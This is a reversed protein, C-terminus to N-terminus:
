GASMSISQILTKWPQDFRPRLRERGEQTALHGVSIPPPRQHRGSATSLRHGRRGM